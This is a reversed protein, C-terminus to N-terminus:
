LTPLTEPACPLDQLIKQVAISSQTVALWQQADGLEDGESAFHM